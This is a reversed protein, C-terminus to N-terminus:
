RGITLTTHRPLIKRTGAERFRITLKVSPGSGEVSAIVGKGFMPHSVAMGVAFDDDGAPDPHTGDDDPVVRPGKSVTPRLTGATFGGSGYGSSGRNGWATGGGRSKGSARYGSPSWGGASTSGDAPWPRRYAPDRKLELLEEPIEDLFRSTANEVFDGFSRRSGAATLLLRERARTVAVYFLRREEELDAESESSRIHPFVHEELGTVMVVPFELGKASHVTMLTVGADGFPEDTDSRLSSRDVFGQLGEPAGQEDYEAAASTFADINELRSEHDGPYAKELFSVYGIKGMLASLLGVVGMRSKKPAAFESAFLTGAAPDSDVEVAAPDTVALKESGPAPLLGADIAIARLGAVLELFETLSREARAPLSKREIAIEMASSLSVSEAKCIGDLADTTSKGIGRPPVNVIRAFSLDDDPNLMMRLWAVLDKIEKREYFRLSGVVRHPIRERLFIEEFLRSQNNTRYLIAIDTHPRGSRVLGRIQRLVAEAEARDDPALTVEIRDGGHNETWLTKGIRAKNRAIVAGAAALITKTSRYNQELKILKADPYDKQFDLINQIDAGRWSFISQDEDGVCCVNRHTRALARVLLYQARNTDQYEDVLLYKCNAAAREAIGPFKGLLSLANMILDDFDMANNRRLTEQYRRYCRAFAEGGPGFAMKEVDEISELRNKASSIRHHMGRSSEAADDLGMEKMQGRLLSLQDASDYIVFGPSYGLMTADRRLMRLSLAHFTGVWTGAELGGLLNAVRTKMEGAAKNTFTVAYVENPAALGERVLRALRCTIVRTKGSGAGALILLPGDSSLVAERQPENLDSLFDNM